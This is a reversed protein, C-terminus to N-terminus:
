QKQLLPIVVKNLLDNDVAIFQDRVVGQADIVYTLPVGEPDGFGNTQIATRLAFPYSLPKMAKVVKGHDSPHDVSIGIMQLGQERYKRFFADLVPMEKRCPVCWTAWYNVLVVHGKYASLDFHEGDDQAVVLMPAPQNMVPTAFASQTLLPLCCILLILPCARLKMVSRMEILESRGLPLDYALQRQTRSSPLLYRGFVATLDQM